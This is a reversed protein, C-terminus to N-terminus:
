ELGPLQALAAEAGPDEGQGLGFLVIRSELSM